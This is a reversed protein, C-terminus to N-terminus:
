LLLLRKANLSFIKEKETDTLLPDLLVGGIFMAPNCTPYDSGFLLRDAGCRDIMYRLMGHRFLGHGSLDTYYNDNRKMRELHRNVRDSEGPHAGVFVVDPHSEVMRDTADENGSHTNVIMHYKGAEDLIASLGACDYDLEGWEDIYPVLEGILRVGARHMRHIEEISEEVYAPHVHFGPVYADGFKKWLKLASDNVRRIEDFSGVPGRHDSDIVSGCFVGIGADALDEPMQEPELYFDEGYMGMYEVRSTYPHTHFDIVKKGDVISEEFANRM